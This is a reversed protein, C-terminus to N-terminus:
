NFYNEPYYKDGLDTEFREPRSPAKVITGEEVMRKVIARAEKLGPDERRERIEHMILQCALGMKHHRGPSKIVLSEVYSQYSNDMKNKQIDKNIFSNVNREIFFSAQM